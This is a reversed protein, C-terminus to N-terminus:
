FSLSYYTEEGCSGTAEYGRASVVALLLISCPILIQSSTEGCSGVDECDAALNEM